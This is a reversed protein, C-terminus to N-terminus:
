ASDDASSITNGYTPGTLDTQTSRLITGVRLRSVRIARSRKGRHYCHFIVQPGQQSSRQRAMSGGHRPGACVAFTTGRKDPPDACTACAGGAIVAREGSLDITYCQRPAGSVALGPLFGQQLIAPLM